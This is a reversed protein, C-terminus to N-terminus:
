PITFRSSPWSARVPLAEPSLPLLWPSISVSLTVARPVRLVAGCPRSRLVHSPVALTATFLRLSSSFAPLSVPAPSTFLRTPCQPSQVLARSQPRRSTRQRRAVPLRAAGVARSDRGGLPPVARISSAVRSAFGQVRCRPSISACPVPLLLGDLAHSVSRASRRRARSARHLTSEQHQRRSSPCSGV